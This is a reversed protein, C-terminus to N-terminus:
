VFCSLGIVMGVLDYAMKDSVCSAVILGSYAVFLGGFVLLKWRQGTASIWTPISSSASSHPVTV